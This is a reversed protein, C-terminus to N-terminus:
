ETLWFIHLYLILELVLFIFWQGRSPNKGSDPQICLLGVVGSLGMFLFIKAIM